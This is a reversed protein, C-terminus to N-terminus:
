DLDEFAAQNNSPAGKGEVGAGDDAVKNLDQNVEVVTDPTETDSEDSEVAPSISVVLQVAPQIQKKTAEGQGRSAQNKVLYLNRELIAIKNVSTLVTKTLNANAQDTTEVTKTLKANAQDALFLQRFAYSAALSVLSLAICARKFETMGNVHAVHAFFLGTIFAVKAAAQPIAWSSSRPNIEVTHILQQVAWRANGVLGLM